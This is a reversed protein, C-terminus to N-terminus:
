FDDCLFYYMELAKRKRNAQFPFTQDKQGSVESFRKTCVKRKLSVATNFLRDFGPTFTNTETMDLEKHGRCQLRGSEKVMPNELCSYQLPNGNGEGATRGLGPISGLDGSNCASEKADSGGPFGM